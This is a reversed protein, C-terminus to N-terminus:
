ERYPDFLEMQEELSGEVDCWSVLDALYFRGDHHWGPAPQSMSGLACIRNVGISGLFEITRQFKQPSCAVGVTQILGKIPQILQRIDEIQEIPIVTVFRNLPSLPFAENSERYVVTWATNEESKIMSIREDAYQEFEVTARSKVIAYNEAESLVARPHKHEFNNMEGALMQAFDRPSYKGGKEVFFVHPSLCGQQDFWSADHAALKTTQSGKTGDLTEKSLIGFSVKHGHPFFPVHTPVQRRVAEITKQGGYAIVAQSQEFSTAELAEDGGKWSVIAIADAFRPEIEQLTKAFLVPFLPESSSVKGFTASKVLMGATMSWLPLVPVNGSFVHTILEPGYARTFGGAKRPRFEDLVLPNSFDSDVMKLLKEKRFQRLYRRLFLRIMEEDYGTIRPLWQEALLRNEDNPELWRCVAEDVIEIIENTRLKALYGGREEKLTSIITTVDASNLIPTELSIGNFTLKTIAHNEFYTECKRPVHFCRFKEMMTM